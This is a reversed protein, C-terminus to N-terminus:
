SLRESEQMCPSRASHQCTAQHAAAATLYPVTPDIRPCLISPCSRPHRLNCTIQVAGDAESVVASSRVVGTAAQQLGQTCRLGASRHLLLSLVLSQLPLTFPPVEDPSAGCLAAAEPTLWARHVQAIAGSAIPEWEFHAFVEDLPLALSEQLVARTAAASHPPVATHLTELVERIDTPLLDPRASAWQGWKAWAPGCYKLSHRLLQLWAARGYRHLNALPYTLLLPALIALLLATRFCMHAVFAVNSVLGPESLPQSSPSSPLGQCHSQSGDARWLSLLGAGAGCGAAVAVPLPYRLTSWPQLPKRTECRWISTLVSKLRNALSPPGSSGSYRGIQVHRGSAVALTGYRLFADRGVYQKLLFHNTALKRKAHNM